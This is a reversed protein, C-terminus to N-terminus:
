PAAELWARLYRMADVIRYSGAQGALAYVTEVARCDDATIGSTEIANALDIAHLKWRAEEVVLDSLEDITMGPTADFRM